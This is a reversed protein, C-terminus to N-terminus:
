DKLQQYKDTLFADVINEVQNQTEKDKNYESLIHLLNTILGHKLCFDFSAKYNLDFIWCILSLLYDSLSNVINNPALERRAFFSLVDASLPMAIQEATRSKLFLYTFKEAERKMMQFNAIKDADMVVSLVTRIDSKLEPSSIEAYEPDSYFKPALHGHHKVALIIEPRNYAPIKRLIEAGLQGHDVHELPHIYNQYVEEFRGIDHLLVATKAMNIFEPTRNQFDKEHRIIYNGAGLVQYSHKIKEDLWRIHYESNNIRLCTEEYKQRILQKEKELM